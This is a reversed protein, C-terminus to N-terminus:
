MVIRPPKGLDDEDDKRPKIEIQNHGFLQTKTESGRKSLFNKVLDQPDDTVGKMKELITNIDKERIVTWDRNTMFGELWIYFEKYNM